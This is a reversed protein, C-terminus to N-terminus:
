KSCSRAFKRARTHSLPVIDHVCRREVDFHVEVLKLGLLHRCNFASNIRFACVNCRAAGGRMGMSRVARTSVGRRVPLAFAVPEAQSAENDDSSSRERHTIRPKSRARQRCTSPAPPHRHRRV